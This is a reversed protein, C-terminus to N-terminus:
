EEPLDKAFLLQKGRSLLPPGSHKGGTKLSTTVSPAEEEPSPLSVLSCFHIEQKFQILESYSQEEIRIKVVVLVM